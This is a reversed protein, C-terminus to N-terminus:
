KNKVGWFISINAVCHVTSAQGPGTIAFLPVTYSDNISQEHVM